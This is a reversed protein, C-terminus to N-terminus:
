AHYGSDDIYCNNANGTGSSSYATGCNRLDNGICYTYQSDTFFRIGYTNFTCRNSLVSCNHPYAGIGNGCYAVLNGVINGYWCTGSNCGIKIGTDGCNVISNGNILSFNLMDIRIGNDTCNTITNDTIKWNILRYIGGISIGDQGVNRITNGHITNNDSTVGSDLRSGDIGNLKIFSVTNHSVEVDNSESDGETGLLIGSANMNYVINGVVKSKNALCVIGDGRNQAGGYGGNSIYNGSIIAGTFTMISIGTDGFYDITNETVINGYGSGRCSIGCFQPNYIINKTIVWYSSASETCIAYYNSNKIFCNEVRGYDSFSAHISYKGYTGTNTQIIHLNRITVYDSDYVYIGEIDGSFSLTASEEGELTVYNKSVVKLPTTFNLAGKFFVKRSSSTLGSDRVDEWVETANTSQFDIQGSSCNKAKYVGGDEFVIYSATQEPYALTDTRNEGRWWLEGTRLDMFTYLVGAVWEKRIGNEYDVLTADAGSDITVTIGKAGKDLILTVNDKLTVSASYTGASVFVSGGSSTCNDIAYQIVLDDDTGSMGTPIKGDYRVAWFYTADTKVVYSATSPLDDLYINSASFGGNSAVYAVMALFIM